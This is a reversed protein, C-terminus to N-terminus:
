VKYREDIVEIQKSLEITGDQSISYLYFHIKLYKDKNLFLNHLATLVLNPAILTATGMYPEGYKFHMILKGICHYPYFNM